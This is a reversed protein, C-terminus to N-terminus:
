QDSRGPMSAIRGIIFGVMVDALKVMNDTIQAHGLGTLVYIIVVAFTFLLTVIEAVSRGKTDGQEEERAM